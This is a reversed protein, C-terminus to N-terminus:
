CSNQAGKGGRLNGRGVFRALHQWERAAVGGERLRGRAHRERRGVHVGTLFLPFPPKIRPGSSREYANKGSKEEEKFSTYFTNVTDIYTYTQQFRTVCNFLRLSCTVQLSAALCKEMCGYQCPYRNYYSLNRCRNWWVTGAARAM